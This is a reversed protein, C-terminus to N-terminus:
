GGLNRCNHIIQLVDRGRFYVLETYLGKFLQARNGAKTTVHLTFDRIPHFELFFVKLGDGVLAAVWLSPKMNNMNTTHGKHVYLTCGKLATTSPKWIKYDSTPYLGKYSPIRV